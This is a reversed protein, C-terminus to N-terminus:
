SCSNWCRKFSRVFNHHTYKGKCGQLAEIKVEQEKMKEQLERVSEELIKTRKKLREVQKALAPKIEEM